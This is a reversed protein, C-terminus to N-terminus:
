NDISYMKRDVWDFLSFLSWIMWSLDKGRQHLKWIEEIAKKNILPRLDLPIDIIRNHIKSKLSTRLWVALPITFGKKPGSNSADHPIIENLANRLPIKSNSNDVCDSFKLNQSYKILRQSLLPTRVELSHYMSARDVKLLVRQLHIHFELQRAFQLAKEKDSLENEIYKYWYPPTNPSKKLLRKSWFLSGPIGQKSLYYDDFKKFKMLVFPVQFGKAKLNLIKFLRIFRSAKLFKFEEAAHIFRSYGFFLEDGGDGSFVVTLNKKAIECVKLTILSSFDSLPEGTSAVYQDLVRFVDEETLTYVKHDIAFYKGFRKAETIEDILKDNVGITFCQIGKKLRSAIGTILTSDVGGSMLTGLSVDSILQSEVINTILDLLNAGFTLESLTNYKRIEINRKADIQVIHGHPMFYTDEILGEGEQIFGFNFFNAVAAPVIPKHRFFKHSTIHNYNSSFVLGSRCFGYYLPKIGAIDRILTVKTELINFVAMSFVGDLRAVTKEIGKREFCELIVEADSHGNLQKSNIDAWNCLEGTNYINGNLVLILNGSKSVMPQSEAKSMDRISLRRFGIIIGNDDNRWIKSEDPGRREMDLLANEIFKQHMSVPNELDWVGVFGCM